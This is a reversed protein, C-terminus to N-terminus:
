LIPYYILNLFSVFIHHCFLDPLLCPCSSQLCFTVLVYDLLFFVIHNFSIKKTCYTIYFNVSAVKHSLQCCILPRVSNFPGAVSPANGGRNATPRAFQRLAGQCAASHHGHNGASGSRLLNRLPDVRQYHGHQTHEGQVDYSARVPTPRTPSGVRATGQLTPSHQGICLHTQRM